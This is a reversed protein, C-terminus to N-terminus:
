NALAKVCRVPIGVWAYEHFASGNFVPTSGSLYACTASALNASAYSNYYTQNTWTMDGYSTFASWGGSGNYIYVMPNYPIGGNVAQATTVLPIRTNDTSGSVWNAGTLTQGESVTPVHWASGLTLTCPDQAAPWTGTPYFSTQPVNAAVNYGQKLGWQFWWGNTAALYVTNFGAQTAGLHRSLWCNSGIAVVEYSIDVTTPSLDGAKHHVTITSPCFGTACSQAYLSNAGVFLAIFLYM